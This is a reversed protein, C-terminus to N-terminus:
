QTGDTYKQIFRAIRDVCQVKFSDARSSTLFELHSTLDVLEARAKWDAPLRMGGAELGSKILGHYEDDTHRLLNGIDMYPTGSHCYEWDLIGSVVGESILINTPNFDGHVLRREADLEDLRRSERKVIELIKHVAERGIWGRVDAREFMHTIFGRVGGFSFPSVSGNPSVWGRSEFVVSSIKALVEAAAGSQEPVGELLEGELFSFVSWSEGRAIEIPVPVIDRVLDMVYTERQADGRRYLRLVYAEGDSLILKYNTNSKGAALLEVSLLERGGLFDRILSRDFPQHPNRRDILM